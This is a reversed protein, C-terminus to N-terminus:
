IEEKILNTTKHQNARPYSGACADPVSVYVADKEPSEYGTVAVPM